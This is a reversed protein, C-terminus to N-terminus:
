YVESRDWERLVKTTMKMMGGVFLRQSMFHLSLCVKVLFGEGLRKKLCNHHKNKEMGKSSQREGAVDQVEQPNNLIDAYIM